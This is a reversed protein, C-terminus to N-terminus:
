ALDARVRAILVVGVAVVPVNVMLVSGWWFHELLWGGTVPGLAVALGSTAAWIAIATPGSPPTTFVNVLIALTAPFILAAGIGM